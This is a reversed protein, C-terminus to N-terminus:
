LLLLQGEIREPMTAQQWVEEKKHQSLLDLRDCFSSLTHAVDQSEELLLALAEETNELKGADAIRGVMERLQAGEVLKSVEEVLPKVRETTPIFPGLFDSSFIDQCLLHSLLETWRDVEFTLNYVGLTSYGAAKGLFEDRGSLSVMQQNFEKCVSTSLYQCVAQSLYPMSETISPLFRGPDLLWVLDFPPSQWRHQVFELEKLFAYCRGKEELTAELAPMILFVEVLCPLSTVEQHFRRILGALEITVSTTMRKGLDSLILYRLSNLERNDRLFSRYHRSLYGLFDDVRTSLEQRYGSPNQTSLVLADTGAAQNRVSIWGTEKEQLGVRLRQALDAGEQGISIIVTATSM